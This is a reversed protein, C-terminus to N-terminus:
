GAENEKKKEKFDDTIKDLNSATNKKSENAIQEELDRIERMVEGTKDVTQLLQSCIINLSAILYKYAQRVFDDKKADKFIAEDAATFTREVRGELQNIEKQLSRM